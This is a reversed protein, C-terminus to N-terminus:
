ALMPFSPMFSLCVIDRLPQGRVLAGDFLSGFYNIGFRAVWARLQNLRWLCLPDYHAPNSTSPMWNDPLRTLELGTEDESPPYIEAPMIPHKVKTLCAYWRQKIVNNDWNYFSWHLLAYGEPMLHRRTLELCRFTHAFWETSYWRDGPDCYAINRWNKTWPSAADSRILTSSRWLHAWPLALGEGPACALLIKRLTGDLFCNATFQEDADMVIFHTGGRARGSALLRNRNAAEHYDWKHNPLIAVVHCERALSNIVEISDDDSADDLCIIEDVYPALGRLCSPLAHQENRIAVLGVIKV